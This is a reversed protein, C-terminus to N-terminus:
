QQNEAHKHSKRSNKKSAQTGEGVVCALFGIIANPAASGNHAPTQTHHPSNTPSSLARNHPQHHAPPTHTRTYYRRHAHTSAPCVLYASRAPTDTHTHYQNHRHASAPTYGVSSRRSNSLRPPNSPYQCRAQTHNYSATDANLRHTASSSPSHRASRTSDSPCCRAPPASRAQAATRRGPQAQASPQRSATPTHPIHPCAKCQPAGQIVGKPIGWSM